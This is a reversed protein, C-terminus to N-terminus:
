KQQTPVVTVQASGSLLLRDLSEFESEGAAGVLAALQVRNLLYEYRAQQLDRRVSYLDQLANLVETNTRLGAKQGVEMGRVTVEASVVGQQLARVRAIGSVIGRYAQSVKIDADRTISELDRRAKDRQALAQRTQAMTAGGSFLDMSVQVGVNTTNEWYSFYNSEQSRVRSAVLSVAPAFGARARDIEFGAIAVAGQQAVVKLNRARAADRWASLDEPEPVVLAPAVTLPAVPRPPADGVIKAYETRRLELDNLAALEQAEALQLRAKTQEVDTLTAVGSKFLNEAQVRQATLARKQAGALEVNDASLLTNFYASAFRVALDQGADAFVVEGRRARADGERWAAWRAYDFLPQTLRLSNIRPTFRFDRSVQPANLDARHHTVNDGEFGASLSPLLGARAIARNETEAEFTARAAAYDPDTGLAKRFTAALSDAPHAPACAVLLLVGTFVGRLCSYLSM